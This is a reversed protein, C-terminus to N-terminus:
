ENRGHSDIEGHYIFNGRFGRLDFAQWPIIQGTRRQPIPHVEHTVKRKFINKGQGDQIDAQL